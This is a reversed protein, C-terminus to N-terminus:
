VINDRALVAAHAALCSFYTSIVGEDAWAVLQALGDWYPEQRLDAARPEAGTVILADLGASPLTATSAYFGEMRAQVTDGRLIQPLSFLHLRVNMPHSGLGASGEKLLRAFQLEPARLAADPMNNVLGVHLAGRGNGRAPGGLAFKETPPNAM